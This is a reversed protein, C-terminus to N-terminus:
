ARIRDGWGDPDERWAQLASHEGESLSGSARAVEILAPYDTLTYLPVDAEDFATRARDFAYSFIALTAIVEAGADRLAEVAALSSGGTSVLDEILLVRAGRRLRGEIQNGRGHGKPKSRVYVLPLNLRDALWAAHPIGATATGAIVDPSWGHKEVLAIFGDALRSRVEPESLTLRNDCYIPSKLGSAWTFPTGPRLEVAGIRLLDHALSESTPAVSM